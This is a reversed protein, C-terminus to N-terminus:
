RAQLGWAFNMIVNHICSFPRSFSLKWFVWISFLPLLSQQNSHIWEVIRFILWLLRYNQHAFVSRELFQYKEKLAFRDKSIKQELLHSFPEKWAKIFRHELAIVSVPNAAKEDFDYWEQWYFILHICFVHCLIVCCCSMSDNEFPMVPYILEKAILINRSLRLFTAKFWPTHICFRDMLSIYWASKEPMDSSATTKGCFVHYTM